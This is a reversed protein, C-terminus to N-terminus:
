SKFPLIVLVALVLIVIMAVALPSSILRKIEKRVYAVM